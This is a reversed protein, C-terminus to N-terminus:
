ITGSLLNNNLYLYNLQVLNGLDAPITGDLLNSKLNLDMLRSLNGVAPPISGFIHNEQLQLHLLNPQAISTPLRGGLDMGALEVELLDTCNRLATFFPDLNTNHDHSTM